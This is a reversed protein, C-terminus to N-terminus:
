NGIILHLRDLLAWLGTPTLSLPKVYGEADSILLIKHM